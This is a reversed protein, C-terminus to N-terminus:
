AKAVWYGGERRTWRIIIEGLFVARVHLARQVFHETRSIINQGPLLADRPVVYGACEFFVLLPPHTKM